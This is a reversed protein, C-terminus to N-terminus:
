IRDKGYKKGLEIMLLYNEVPVYDPVSNGTGFAYGGGIKCKEIIKKCYSELKEAPYTCVAELDVGGLVAVKDGYIEKAKTIPFVIDQFSHWGDIGVWDIIDDIIELINGCSHLIFPKDHKHSMEVIDKHRPLVHERM